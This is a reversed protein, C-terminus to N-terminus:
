GRRCFCSSVVPDFGIGLTHNMLSLRDTIILRVDDQFRFLPFTALMDCSATVTRKAHDAHVIAYAGPLPASDVQTTGAADFALRKASSLRTSTTFDGKALAYGGDDLGKLIAMDSAFLSGQPGWSEERMGASTCVQRAKRLTDEDLSHIFFM